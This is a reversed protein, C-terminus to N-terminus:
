RNSSYLFWRHRTWDLIIYKYKTLTQRRIHLFDSASGVLTSLFFQVFIKKMEELKGFIDAFRFYTRGFIDDDYEAFTSRHRRERDRTILSMMTMMPAMTITTTQSTVVM